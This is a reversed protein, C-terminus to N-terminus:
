MVWVFGTDEFCAHEVIVNVPNRMKLDVSMLSWQLERVMIMQVKAGQSRHRQIVDNLFLIETLKMTVDDETSHSCTTTDRHYCTVLCHRM